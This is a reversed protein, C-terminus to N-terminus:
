PHDQSMITMEANLTVVHTGLKQEIRNMLWNSYDDMLHVPLNLVSFKKPNEM